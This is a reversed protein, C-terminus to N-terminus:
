TDTDSYDKLRGQYRSWRDKFSKLNPGGAPIIVKLLHFEAYDDRACPHLHVKGTLPEIALLDRDFLRHLDARIILGNDLTDAGAGDVGLVHAADIADRSRCGSILCSGLFLELLDVRFKAQEKRAWREALERQRKLRERENREALHVIDFDDRFWGAYTSSHYNPHSEGKIQYALNAVAKLPFLRDNSRVFYTRAPRGEGVLAYLEADDKTERARSLAKELDAKTLM